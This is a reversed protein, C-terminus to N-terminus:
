PTAGALGVVMGMALLAVLAISTHGTQHYSEPLLEALVLQLLSGVAIGLAWPQAGPAAEIVVFTVVAVLVQNLNAAVALIAAHLTRVGRGRLIETLVMAEPVNHIALALAMSVGFPTSVTMAAGIAVGEFASHVTNVLMVQYGYAPGVDHLANLDLEATGLLARTLLVAVVGVAAGASGAWYAEGLGETLLLYAVGLMLGAAMANAWGLAGLSLKGRILRPLVGLGAAFATISAWVLVVLTPDSSLTSV